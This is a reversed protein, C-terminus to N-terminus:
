GVAENIQILGTDIDETLGELLVKEKLIYNSIYYLPEKFVM